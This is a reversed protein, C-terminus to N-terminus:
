YNKVMLSNGRAEKSIITPKGDKSFAKPPYHTVSDYDYSTGYM